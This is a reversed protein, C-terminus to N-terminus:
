ASVELGALLARVAATTVTEKGGSLGDYETLLRRMLRTHEQDHVAKFINQTQERLAKETLIAARLGFLENQVTHWAALVTENSRVFQEVIRLTAISTQEQKM